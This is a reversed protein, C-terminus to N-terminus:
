KRLLKLMNFAFAHEADVAHYNRDVERWDSDQWPPFFVDGDITADVLTLQLCDAYPMCQQYIMGGGIVMLEHEAPWSELYTQLCSVHECGEAQFGAERSVVVNRRHALARGISHYTKRGMLVTKDTTLKKFHRLDDPLSWPLQGDRGIVRKNKTMAAVLTIMKKRLFTAKNLQLLVGAQLLYWIEM